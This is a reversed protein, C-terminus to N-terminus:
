THFSWSVVKSCVETYVSPIQPYNSAITVGLCGKADPVEEPPDYKIAVPCVQRQITPIQAVSSRVDVYKQLFGASHATM